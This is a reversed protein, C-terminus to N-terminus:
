KFWKKIELLNHFVPVGKGLLRQYSSHGHAILACGAGLANAVELDHLTDGIFLIEKRSCNLSEVWEKGIQLKSNAYHNDLGLVKTFYKNLQHHSILEDLMQQRAASLLSQTLGLKNFYKLTSIVNEHLNPTYMRATYEEIFETGVVNFPIKNYDFGLKKYYDSVPFTFIELYKEENVKPLKHRQLVINIAQLALPRDDLLTGNWDWVIHKINNKM